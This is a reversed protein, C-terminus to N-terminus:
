YRSHESTEWCQPSPAQFRALLTLLSPSFLIDRSGSCRSVRAFLYGALQAIKFNRVRWRTPLVMTRSAESSPVKMYVKAASINAPDIGLSSPLRESSISSFSPHFLSVPSFRAKGGAHVVLLKIKQFTHGACAFTDQARTPPIRGCGSM